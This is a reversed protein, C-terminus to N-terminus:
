DYISHDGVSHFYVTDELAFEFIVRNEANVSFAWFGGLRGHLKHTKLRKDLPNKRFIKEKKEALDKVREPLKKYERAFKSSYVIEM